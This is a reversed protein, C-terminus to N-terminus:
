QRCMTSMLIAMLSAIIWQDQSIEPMMNPVYRGCGQPGIEDYIATFSYQSMILYDYVFTFNFMPACTESLLVFRENSFDLLANGLLRREADIVSIEGWRVEQM